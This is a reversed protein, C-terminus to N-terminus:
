TSGIKTGNADMTTGQKIFYDINYTISGYVKGQNALSSKFTTSGSSNLDLGFTSNKTPPTINFRLNRMKDSHPIV